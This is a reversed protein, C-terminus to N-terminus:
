KWVHALVIAVITIVMMALNFTTLWTVRAGVGFGRAAEIIRTNAAVTKELADVRDHLDSDSRHQIM